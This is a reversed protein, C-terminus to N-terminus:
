AGPGFAGLFDDDIIEDVLGLAQCEAASLLKDGGSYVFDAWWDADHRGTRRAFLSGILLQYHQALKLYDRFIREEEGSLTWRASHLMMTSYRGLSRSQGCQFIIAGMSYAYGTIATNVTVGYDRRVRAVMEIIALGAGVAGGASNIYLTLPRDLAGNERRDIAMLLLAKCCREAEAEDIAGLFYAGSRDLDARRGAYQRLIDELHPVDM